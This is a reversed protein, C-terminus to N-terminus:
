LARKDCPRHARQTIRVGDFLKTCFCDRGCGTSNCLKVCSEESDEVFNKGCVGMEGLGKLQEGRLIIKCTNM